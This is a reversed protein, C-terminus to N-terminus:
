SGATGKATMVRYAGCLSVLAALSMLAVAAALEFNFAYYDSGFPSWQFYWPARASMASWWTVTTIVLAVVVGALAVALRSEVQLVKPSITVRRASSVGVVTWMTLTSAVLLVLGLFAATYYLDGGSRAIEGLHRAWASLAIVAALTAFSFSAAIAVKRKVVPWGGSRLFGVFSPLVLLAGTLVILTGVAGLAELLYYAVQPLLRTNPQLASSFHESAKAFSGGALVVASWAVLVLLSGARKREVTSTAAGILGAGRARQHVGSAAVKLRYMPGPKSGALDDDMLAVFEEGYRNRWAPPYWRLLRVKPDRERTM